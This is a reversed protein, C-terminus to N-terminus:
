SNGWAKLKENETKFQREEQLPYPSPVPRRGRRLAGRTSKKATATLQKAWDEVELKSNKIKLKSNDELFGAKV